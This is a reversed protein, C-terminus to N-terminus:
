SGPITEEHNVPITKVPLKALRRATRALVMKM